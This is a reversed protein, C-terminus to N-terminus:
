NNSCALTACNAGIFRSYRQRIVNVNCLGNSQCGPIVFPKENMLFLVEDNGAPCNYRIAALNTAMPTIFSSRWQRNAQINFNAATLPVDGDFLGLTVMFLQFATSHTSYIRVNETQDSTDLFGLLDQILLCNMNEFLRRPGGYGTNYFYDLDEFYELMLNNHPSFLGCFPAPTTSSWLQEFNCIEWLTRTQRATLRESGLLGAKDNVQNLM